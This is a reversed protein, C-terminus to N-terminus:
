PRNGDSGPQRCWVNMAIIIRPRTGEYMLVEHLLYSPFVIMQGPKHQLAWEGVKYPVQLNENFPDRYMALGSRPDHFRVAGSNPSGPDGPDICYIASWSANPHNHATQYGGKRTVHFWSHKDMQLADMQADSYQCISQIFSRLTSDVFSFLYRIPAEDRLHLYFNSEFVGHQTDRLVGDRHRDGEAELRLLLDALDRNLQEHRTLTAQMMPVAYLPFVSAQVDDNSNM